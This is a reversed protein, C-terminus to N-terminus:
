DVAQVGDYAPLRNCAAPWDITGQVLETLVTIVDDIPGILQDTTDRERLTMTRNQVSAFDLTVGFPTGLEDNRAYRKGISTNSDDVRSFIGAKRLKTSVEQVLPDFEEKASLPVILVKTPAVVPPLSLVGREIDQERCWFSHELLTYLIRGFGFSPEIVNPTFERISQKFTKREITLLDPTLAFEKGEASITASGQALEGKLKVLQSEDMEIVAKQLLGADRGYTKGLVKKNFEPVEKETVIPEKLAQRVVLPQGTKASHVSLDYAARDACGVCETWGTANEIEADWCDAAYHAMENAMHQRFRLRKPNIGIKILFLNIRVLFYGLTENAVIGKDVAEGITMQTVRTSGSVQVHRDLLSLVTDRVERFKEHSKDAPDVFHEIEGMTFERVRLLGARPSIENRFSRGIQASAFPVRGNNFELLRSFNLFHGQATEPRLFGPHQGTPGISSAFMLNFQQPEGVENDTDPNRIDYKRCLDGLEPGSYNDLQALISEFEKVLEDALQVVVTKAKKKRKKDKEDDKPQAALGRAERDGALRAELVSKVLHDARLVDGTKTDKVMWDAFRAVHGSTEFVTAPTMITTDLELMHDEIIFHKRWEATINAQLSSGPPGYDYLGAVGGYIEFAPAYFFRRNLLADLRSKDFPHVSKNVSPCTPIVTADPARRTSSRDM